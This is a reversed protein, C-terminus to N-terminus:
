TVTPCKIIVMIYDACELCGVHKSAPEMKFLHLRTELMVFPPNIILTWLSMSMLCGQRVSSKVDFEASQYM